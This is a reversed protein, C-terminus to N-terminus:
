ETEKRAALAEACERSNAFPDFWGDLLDIVDHWDTLEKAEITGDSCPHYVMMGPVVACDQVPKGDVLRYCKPLAAVIARLRTLEDAAEAFRRKYPPGFEIGAMDLLFEENTPCRERLTDDTERDSWIPDGGMM